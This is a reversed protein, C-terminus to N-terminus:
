NTVHVVMGDFSVDYEILPRTAPGQFITNNIISFISGCCDFDNLQRTNIDLDLQSCVETADFTCHREYAKVVNQSERYLVIGKSGGNIYVAGGINGLSTYEPDNINIKENVNVNPVATAAQQEDKSCSLIFILGIITSFQRFSTYNM